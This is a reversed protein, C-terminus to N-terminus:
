SYQRNPLQRWRCRSIGFGNYNGTYTTRDILEYEKGSLYQFNLDVGLYKSFMFGGGLNLNVGSGYSGSVVEIKTSYEQIDSNYTEFYNTGISQPATPMAYGVGFKFYVKQAHAISISLILCLSLSLTKM